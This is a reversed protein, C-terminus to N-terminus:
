CCLRLAVLDPTVEPTIEAKASGPGIPSESPPWRKDPAWWLCVLHAREIVSSPNSFPQFSDNQRIVVSQCNNISSSRLTKHKIRTTNEQVVEFGHKNRQKSTIQVHKKTQTIENPKIKNM